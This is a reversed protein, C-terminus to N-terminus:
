KPCIRQDINCKLSSAVFSRTNEFTLQWSLLNLLIAVYLWLIMWVIISVALYSVLPLTQCIFARWNSGIWNIEWSSWVSCSIWISYLSRTHYSTGYSCDFLYVIHHICWLHNWFLNLAPVVEVQGCELHDSKLVCLATNYQKFTGVCAPTIYEMFLIYSFSLLPFLLTDRNLKIVIIIHKTFFCTTLYAVYSIYSKRQHMLIDISMVCFTSSYQAMLTSAQCRWDHPCRYAFSHTIKRIYVRGTSATHIVNKWNGAFFTSTTKDSPKFDM